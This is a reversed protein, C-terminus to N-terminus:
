PDGPPQSRQQALGGGLQGPLDAKLRFAGRDQDVSEEGRGSFAGAHGAHEGTLPVRGPEVHLRHSVQVAPQDVGPLRTRAGPM